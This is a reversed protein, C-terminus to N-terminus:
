RLYMREIVAMEDKDVIWVENWKLSMDTKVELNVNASSFLKGIDYLIDENIVNVLHPPMRIEINGGEWDWLHKRLFSKIQDIQYEEKLVLGTGGCVPCPNYFDSEIGERIRKRTVEILGFESIPLVKVPTRDKKVLSRFYEYLEKKHKEEKMDIFDVVIIGGMDRLRMQRAIEEAALMNTKFIMDEQNKKNNTKGSNVDIAVLATTQEIVLYGGNKLYVHKSRMKRIQDEVGYHEFITITDDEYLKVRDLFEPQVYQMYSKIANFADKDDVVVENVDPRFQDRLVRLVLSGEEYLPYPSKVNKAKRLLNNWVERLFDLEEELRFKEIHDAATRVIVLEDKGFGFEKVITKLRQREKNDKIKRSVAVGRLGPMIVAYHGPLSIFTTIRPGKTGLPEKVIQVILEDGKKIKKKKMINEVDEKYEAIQPLDAMVNSLPLFGAKELGLDVFAANLSKNVATVKGKYINGVISGEGEKEMFFEMLKGDEMVAVRVRDRDINLLIRKEM